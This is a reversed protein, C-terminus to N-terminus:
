ELKVKYVGKSPNEIKNKSQLKKLQSFLTPKSMIETDVCEEMLDKASAFGQPGASKEQIIQLVIDTNTNDTRGDNSDRLMEAESFTGSPVICASDNISFSNVMEDKEPRYRFAVEKMYRRGDPTKNIGIMFDAEQGLIRSGALSDITLPRGSQKPTHHIIILTIKLNNALERIDLMVDKALSSDEIAGSYLRSMSDIFVVDAGSESIIRSLLARAEKTALQRPFEETVISLRGNLDSKLFDLQQKNRDTRQQWYEEMSIFLVKKCETEIPFGFFSDAGSSLIIALNECFITKGSKSPGFIFGVSGVLIGSWLFKKKPELAARAIMNELTDIMSKTPVSTAVPDIGFEEVASYASEVSQTIETTDLDYDGCILGLATEKPIGSRNCNCALQFVFNNRSGNLYTLKKSTFTVASRFVAAWDGSPEPQPKPEQQITANMPKQDPQIQFITADPNHYLDPDHSFFCLRSIDKIAPDPEFALLRSYYESIQKTAKEHEPSHSSVLVFIKLGVGSASIFCALTYECSKAINIIEDLRSEPIHDLDLHVIGSYFSLNKKNRKKNFMGAPTFAPLTKKLAAAAAPDNDKLLQRIQQVKEGCLTGDKILELISGFMRDETVNQFDSFLSCKM